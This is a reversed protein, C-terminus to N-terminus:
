APRAVPVQFDDLFGFGPSQKRLRGLTESLVAPRLWPYPLAAHLEQRKKGDRDEIIDMREIHIHMACVRMRSDDREFKWRYFGKGFRLATSSIQRMIVLWPLFEVAQGVPTISDCVYYTKCCDFSKRFDRVLTQAIADAGVVKAPFAITDTAISYTLVADPTYCDLIVSPQDLDKAQLYAELLSKPTNMANESNQIQIRVMLSIRVVRRSRRTTRM